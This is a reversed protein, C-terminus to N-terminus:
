SPIKDRLRERVRALFRYSITSLVLHRKLGLSRRGEWQSRTATKLAASWGGVSFAALLLTEVRTEKPANSDFFKIEAPGLANHPRGLAAADGGPRNRRQRHDAHAQGGLGDAGKGGDKVHYKVWPQDRLAPSSRLMAEVSIPPWM